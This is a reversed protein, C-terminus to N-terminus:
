LMLVSLSRPTLPTNVPRLFPSSVAAPIKPASRMLTVAATAANAGQLVLHNNQDLTASIGTAATAGNIDSLIAATNDGAAIAIPTGNVVLTGGASSLASIDKNGAVSAIADPALTAGSGVVAAPSASPPPIVLRGLGNSGLDAQAREAIVQELGAQAGNGNLITSASAVAPTSGSAGSFLYTGGVDTNLADLIQGLQGNATTQDTTQGNQNLSFQSNITANHVVDTASSIAGLATQATTLRVGVTNAINSYNALLSLQSQLSVALARGDGIGAYDQAVEGTGLETQLTTLQSELNGVAQAPYYPNQIGSVIM